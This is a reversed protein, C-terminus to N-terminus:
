AHIYAEMPKTRTMTYLIGYYKLKKGRTKFRLNQLSIGFSSISPVKKTCQPHLQSPTEDSLVFHNIGSIACHDKYFATRAFNCMRYRKM